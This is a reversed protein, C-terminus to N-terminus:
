PSEPPVTVIPFLTESGSANLLLLNVSALTANPISLDPNDAGEAVAELGVGDM